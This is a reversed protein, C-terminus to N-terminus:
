LPDLRHLGLLMHLSPPLLSGSQLELQRITDAVQIRCVQASARTARVAKLGAQRVVGEEWDVQQKQDAPLYSDQLHIPLQQGLLVLPFTKKNAEVDWKQTEPSEMTNKMLFAELDSADNDLQAGIGAQLGISSWLDVFQPAAIMAAIHCVLQFLTGSKAEAIRYADELATQYVEASHITFPDWSTIIDRQQGGMAQLLAQDIVASVASWHTPSPIAHQQLVRSLTFLANSTNLLRADGLRSRTPSRDDDELEDFFDLACLLYECSLAIRALATQDLAPQHYTIIYFPLLAWFGPPHLAAPSSSAFLKGEAMLVHEIDERLSLPIVADKLVRYGEKRLTALAEAFQEM